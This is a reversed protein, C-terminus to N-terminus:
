RSSSLIKNIQTKYKSVHLEMTPTKLLTALNDKTSGNHHSMILVFEATYEPKLKLLARRVSNIEGRDKPLWRVGREALLRIVELKGRTENTDIGKENEMWHNRYAFIDWGMGELLSQLTSSGGSEQDNLNLGRDLLKSLFEIGEGKCAWRAAEKAAPQNVDLKV